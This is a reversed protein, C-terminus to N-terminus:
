MKYFRYSEAAGDAAVQLIYLGPSLTSVDITSHRTEAQGYINVRAGTTSVVRYTARTQKGFDIHLTNQVQTPYVLVQEALVNATVSLTKNMFTYVTKDEPYSGLAYGSVTLSFSDLTPSKPDGALTYVIGSSENVNFENAYGVLPGAGNLFYQSPNSVSSPGYHLEVKSDQEYLWVQIYVFDDMTGNQELEDYFGANAIEIKCIRNGTNGEIKYSVPSMSQVSDIAGRDLLDADNFVIGDMMSSGTDVSIMGDFKLYVTNVRKRGVSFSFDLPIAYVFDDWIEGKNLNIAGQLPTYTNQKVTFNYPMQAQTGMAAFIFILLAITHKM